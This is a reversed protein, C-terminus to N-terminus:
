GAPIALGVHESQRLGAGPDDLILHARTGIAPEPHVLAPLRARLCQRKSCVRWHRMRRARPGDARAVIRAGHIVRALAAAGPARAPASGRGTDKEVAVSGHALLDAVHVVDAPAAEQRVARLRDTEQVLGAPPDRDDGILGADRAAVEPLVHDEVHVLPHATKE